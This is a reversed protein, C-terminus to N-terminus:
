ATAYRNDGAIRQVLDTARVGNVLVEAATRKAATTQAELVTPHQGYAAVFNILSSNSDGRGFNNGNKLSLGFDHWSTYPELQPNGSQAHFTRRAQNLGPVGADRGRMINISALDLPLGLLNNRLTS